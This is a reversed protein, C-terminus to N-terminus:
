ILGFGVLHLKKRRCMGYWGMEHVFLLTLAMALFGDRRRRRYSLAWTVTSNPIDCVELARQDFFIGCRSPM